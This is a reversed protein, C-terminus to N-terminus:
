LKTVEPIENKSDLKNKQKKKNRISMYITIVDIFLEIIELFSLVSLGAFLGLQGGVAGFLDSSQMAPNDDFSTYYLNKYNIIVKLFGQRAFSTLDTDSLNQPFMYGKSSTQQDKLYILNPFYSKSSTTLAYDIVNCQEPCAYDCIANIDNTSFAAYYEKLCKIDVDTFCYASNRIPPTIIDSCKCKDILRDQFCLKFCLNQDYYTVNLDSFYGFLVQAYQNQPILGTLCNSYPQSLKNICNRDIGVFTTFGTPINIGPPLTFIMDSQNHVILYM